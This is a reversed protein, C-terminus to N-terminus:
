VDLHLSSVIEIFSTLDRVIFKHNFEHKDITM